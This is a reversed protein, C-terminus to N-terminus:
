GSMKGPGGEGMRIELVVMEQLVLRGSKCPVPSGDGMWGGVLNGGGHGIDGERSRHPLWWTLSYPSVMHRHGQITALLLGSSADWMKVLNDYGGSVITSGDSSIACSLVGFAGTHASLTALENGNILDWM